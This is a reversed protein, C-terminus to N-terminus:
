CRLLCLCIILTRLTGERETWPITTDAPDENTKRRRPPNQPGPPLEDRATSRTTPSIPRAEGPVITLTEGHLGLNRAIEAGQSLDLSKMDMPLGYKITFSRIGTKTGLEEFLTQITADDALEVTGTGSPAKYRARM